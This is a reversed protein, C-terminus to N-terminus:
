EEEDSDKHQNTSQHNDKPKMYEYLVAAIVFTVFLSIVESM